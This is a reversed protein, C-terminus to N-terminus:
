QGGLTCNSNKMHNYSSEYAYQAHQWFYSEHKNSEIYQAVDRDQHNIEQLTMRVANKCREDGTAVSMAIIARNRSELAGTMDRRDSAHSPLSVILVSALIFNRM